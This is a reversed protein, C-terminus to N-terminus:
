VRTQAGILATVARERCRETTAVAVGGAKRNVVGRLNAM